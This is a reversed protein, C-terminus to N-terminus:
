RITISWNGDAEISIVRPGAPWRVTGQYSGIENALLDWDGSPDYADVSFYGSGDHTLRATSASGSWNLVTDGHGSASKGSIRPAATTARIAITWAGDAEIQLSRSDSYEDFLVTGKYSGIASALLDTQELKSDLGWVSFYGSGDHTLTAIAPNSAGGPKTITIVDDGTGSYRTTGCEQTSASNSLVGTGGLIATKMPAFSSRVSYVTSPLCTKTTLVLPGGNVKAAPTGSLADAFSLGTAFFMSSAGGPWITRAIKASTAYRDAGALRTVTADPLASRVNSLVTDSLAGTGGLVYVRSPKLRALETRTVGTLRSPQTLLLPMNQHAAAAGGSLADAFGAGSSLFVTSAASWGRRSVATATAYRDSGSLRVVSGAYSRLKQATAASIAGTGGLVYITAPRLRALEKQVSAPVSDKGVLLVPGDQRAAAPGGALADAYDTGTAVFAAKVPAVFTSRSIAASTAYRDAGALRTTGTPLPTEDAQAVTGITATM